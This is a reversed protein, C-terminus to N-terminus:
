QMDKPDTVKALHWRIPRILDPYRVKIIIENSPLMHNAPRRHILTRNAHRRRYPLTHSAPRCHRLLLRNVLRRPRLM